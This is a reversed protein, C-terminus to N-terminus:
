EGILVKFKTKRIFETTIYASGGFVFLNIIVVIAPHANPITAFTIYILPSHLLYIGFSNKAISNIISNSKSTALAYINVLSLAKLCLVFMINLDTHNNSYIHIMAINIIVRAYKVLNFNYLKKMAKNQVNLFYGGAFWILYNYAGLLPPYGFGIRYGELYLMLAVICLFIEPIQKIVPINEVVSLTIESLIFILFLAPLFWLHGVDNSFLFIELIENIKIKRYSEFGILIRIPLLYLLGIGVYPVLLRKTKNVVLNVIGKNKSHTFKFLYGSISFFLPMQIFDIIFKLNDLWPVMVITDYLDWSSSYLIISHGFVVLFIAYARINEIQSVKQSSSM